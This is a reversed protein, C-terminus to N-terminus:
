KEDIPATKKKLRLKRKIIEKNTKSDVLSLKELTEAAYETYNLAKTLDKKKHEYYKALEIMAYIKNKQAEQLWLQEAKKYNKQKKYIFSLPKIAKENNEREISKEYLEVSMKNEGIEYLIKAVVDGKRLSQYTINLRFYQNIKQLILAMSILDIRNHSFIKGIEDPKKTNLYDFYIQPIDKGLIEKNLDRYLSLKIREINQLACSKLENKWFRRSLTLIDFIELDATKAIKQFKLRNNFLPFDFSKGNFSIVLKFDDLVKKIEELFLKENFPDIMFLQKIKFRDEIFYMFGALFVYTGASHSLGTTETDFFVIEEPKYKSKIKSWKTLTRNLFPKSIRSDGYQRKEEIFEEKLLVRQGDKSIYCGDLWDKLYDNETNNEFEIEEKSIVDKLIEQLEM